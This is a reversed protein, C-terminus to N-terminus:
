SRSADAKEAEKALDRTMRAIILGMFRRWFWGFGYPAAFTSEWEIRTSSGQEELRVRGLYDSLPLGSLLRYACLRGPDAAIVEEKIVIGATRFIRVSGEGYLSNAGSSVHEFSGIGAWHPYGASDAAIDFVCQASANVTATAAVRCMSPDRQM